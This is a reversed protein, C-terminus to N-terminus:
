RGHHVEVTATMGAVLRVADPVQDIHIRVPARQGPAGLDSKGLTAKRRRDAHADDLAAADRQAQAQAGELAIRFATNRCNVFITPVKVTSRSFIAASMM